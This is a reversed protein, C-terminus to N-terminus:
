SPNWPPEGVEEYWQIDVGFTTDWTISQEGPQIPEFIYEGGGEGSGRLASSFKDVTSGDEAILKVTKEKGDVEIRAGASVEGTVKYKNGGIIIQPDTVAGYFTIKPKCPVLRGTDVTGGTIPLTYNYPYDHPYDLNLHEAVPWEATIDATINASAEITDNDSVTPMTITGLDVTYWQSKELPFVATGKIPLFIESTTGNGFYIQNGGYRNLEYSSQIIGYGNNLPTQGRESTCLPMVSKSLSEIERIHESFYVLRQTQLPDTIWTSNVWNIDTELDYEVTRKTLIAHGDSDIDVSDRYTENLGQLVNGDLNIITIDGGVDIGVCNAQMEYSTATSGTELQATANPNFAVASTTQGLCVWEFEGSNFTTTQDTVPDNTIVLSNFHGQAYQEGYHERPDTDFLCVRFRNLGNWYYSTIVYDTNKDVKAVFCTGGSNNLTVYTASSGTMAGTTAAGFLNKGKGVSQIPVTTPYQPTGNQICKGYVSFSHLAYGNAGYATVTEGTAQRYSRDSSGANPPILSVGVLRWWAGDLFAATLSTTVWGFHVGSVNSELIYGRQNWAGLAQFMGPTRNIVDADAAERLIDATEFDTVLNFTVERAYRGASMLDSKGLERAWRRSRIANGTGVFATAGDLSVENAGLTAPIYSLKSM